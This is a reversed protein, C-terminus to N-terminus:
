VVACVHSVIVSANSLVYENWEFANHVIAFWMMSWSCAEYTTDLLAFVPIDFSTAVLTTAAAIPSLMAYRDEIAKMVEDKYICSWRKCIEWIRLILEDVVDALECLLNM